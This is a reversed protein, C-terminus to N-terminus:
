HAFDRIKTLGASGSLTGDPSGKKYFVFSPLNTAGERVVLDGLTDVDVKVFTVNPLESALQEFPPTLARSPGDWIAAFMAVVLDNSRIVEDFEPTSQMENIM